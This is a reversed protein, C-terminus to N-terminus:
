SLSGSGAASRDRRLGVLVGREGHRVEAVALGHSGVELDRAQEATGLQLVALGGPALHERVVALCQRAVTLGDPGGDIALLPDEPYHATQAEPVWPPDAIIVAFLEERALVDTLDGERVEVWGALGNAEANRATLVLAAPNLDVAVLPRRVRVPTLATALLGIHGAGCCLELVPGPPATAMAEVAWRSQDATWARPQLVREDYSVAIGSFDM